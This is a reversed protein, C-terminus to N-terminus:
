EASPLNLRGPWPGDAGRRRLSVADPSAPEVLALHRPDMAAIARRLQETMAAYAQKRTMRGEAIARVYPEPDIPEAFRVKVDAGTPLCTGKPLAKTLGDLRIPVIPTGTRIALMAAGLKFPLLEGDSSRQGEPFLVLPRGESLVNELGRLGGAFEAAREIPVSGTTLRSVVNRWPHDGFVDKAAATSARLALDRPLAALIAPADLHSAHNGCLLVAGRAPVHDVGAVEIRFYASWWLRRISYWAHRAAGFLREGVSQSTDTLRALVPYAAFAFTTIIREPLLRSFYLVERAPSDISDCSGPTLAIAYSGCIVVLTLGPM